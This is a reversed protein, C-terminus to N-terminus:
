LSKLDAVENVVTDILEKMSNMRAEIANIVSKQLEINLITLQKIESDKNEISQRLKKILELHKDREIIFSGNRHAEQIISFIIM